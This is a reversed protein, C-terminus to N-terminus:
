FFFVVDNMGFFVIVFDLKYLIVDEEIRNLVDFINDGLVGVNVVIWNLFM